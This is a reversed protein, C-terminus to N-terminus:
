GLDPLTGDAVMQQAQALAAAPVHEHTFIWFRGAGIGAILKEGVEDPSMGGEVAARVNARFTQTASSLQNDSPMNDVISTAVAGPCLVSATVASGSARLERALTAMLGVVGHKSANYAALFPIAYLGSESA